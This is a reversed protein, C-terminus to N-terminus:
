CPPIWSPFIPGARFESSAITPSGGSKWYAKNANAFEMRSEKIFAAWVRVTASTRNGQAQNPGPTLDKRETVTRCCQSLPSLRMFGSDSELPGPILGGNRRFKEGLVADCGVLILTDNGCEPPVGPQRLQADIAHHPTFV